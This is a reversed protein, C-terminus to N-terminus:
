QAWEPEPDNTIVVTGLRPRAFPMSEGGRISFTHDGPGLNLVWEGMAASEGKTWVWESSMLSVEFEWLQEEQGNVSAWFTNPVELAGQPMMGAGWVYWTDVCPLDFSIVATGQEATETFLYYFGPDGGNHESAMPPTVAANEWALVVDHYENDGCEVPETETESDPDTDTGTDTGTDTDADTDTDTDTDADTGADEVFLPPSSGSCGAVMLVFVAATTTRSM